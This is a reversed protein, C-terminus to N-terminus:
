CWLEFAEIRRQETKKIPWSECRFMVVPFIYSPSYPGKNAFHHRQKKIQKLDITVLLFLLVLSLLKLTNCTKEISPLRRPTLSYSSM